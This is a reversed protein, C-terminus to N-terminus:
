EITYRAAVGFHDSAWLPPPDQRFPTSGTRVVSDVPWEETSLILDIRISEQGAANDLLEAQGWTYGADSPHVANWADAMATTLALYTPTGLGDARSNFDGLAIVPYPSAAVLALLENGQLVQFTGFPPDAVELHTNFIRVTTGPAAGYDISTWGRLFTVPGAPTPLRLRATYNAAMSNNVNRLLTSRVLIVDRDTFRVDVLGSEGEVPGEADTNVVTAVPSYPLGRAALATRLISLFDLVVHRANPTNPGIQVEGNPGPEAIDSPRQERWLTVEQLGVVDPRVLVIEDALARARTRFDTALVDQWAETNADIQASLTPALITGTLEAGLYLNRTMVTLQPGAPGAQATGAPVLVALTTVLVAVLSRYRLPRTLQITM